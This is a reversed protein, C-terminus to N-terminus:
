IDQVGDDRRLMKGRKWEETFMCHESLIEGAQDIMALTDLSYRRARNCLDKTFKDVEECSDFEGKKVRQLIEEFYRIYTSNLDEILKEITEEDLIADAAM